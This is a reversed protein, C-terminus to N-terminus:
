SRGVTLEVVARGGETRTAGLTAVYGAAAMRQRIAEADGGRATAIAAVLGGPGHQLSILEAGDAERLATLLAAASASFGPGVGGMGDLHAQVQAAPDTIETGRPLLRRAEETLKLEVVDAALDQRLLLTLEVLLITLLALAGIGAMRRLRRWDIRWPQRRAFAGQRLDVPLADLAAAIGAEFAPRELKEVPAEGILVAALEPEAAFAVRAGRVLLVHGAEAVRVGEAPPVLLLPAPVVRDPDHGVARCRDLWGALSAADVVALCCEGHEDRPGIAVHTDNPATALVDAAVLRAAAQAQAPSLAPMETWHVVAAEGPVVAVVEEPAEADAPMTGAGRAVVREGDLRLWFLDAGDGPFILLRKM